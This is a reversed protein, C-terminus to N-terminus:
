TLHSLSVPSPVEQFLRRGSLTPTSFTWIQVKFQYSVKHVASCCKGYKQDILKLLLGLLVCKKLEESLLSVNFMALDMGM